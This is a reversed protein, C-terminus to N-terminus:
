PTERKVPPRSSLKEPPSQKAVTKGQRGRRSSGLCPTIEKAVAVAEVGDAAALDDAPMFKKGKVVIAAVQGNGDEAEIDTALIDVFGAQDPILAIAVQAGPRDGAAEDGKV